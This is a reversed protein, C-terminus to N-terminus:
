KGREEYSTLVNNSKELFYLVSRETIGCRALRGGGFHDIGLQRVVFGAEAIRELFGTKSYLRVHDNQGFRRWREVEPIPSLDEDISECDLLIPVLLVGAGSRNLVRHLEHLAKRDDHVHELVHSCIFLDAFGDPYCRLNQIDAVDDVGQM